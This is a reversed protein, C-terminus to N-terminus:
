SPSPRKWPGRPRGPGPRPTAMFRALEKESILWEIGPRIAKLLGKEVYRYVQARHRGIRTAAQQTTLYQM